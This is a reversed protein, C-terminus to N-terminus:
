MGSLRFISQRYWSAAPLYVAPARVKIIVTFDDCTYTDFDLQREYTFNNTPKDEVDFDCAVHRSDMKM